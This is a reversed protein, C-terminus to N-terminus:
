EEDDWGSYLDIRALAEDLAKKEKEKEKKSPSSKKARKKSKEEVPIERALRGHLIIEELEEETAQHLPKGILDELTTM